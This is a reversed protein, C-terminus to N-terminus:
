LSAILRSPLAIVRRLVSGLSGATTAAVITSPVPRPVLTMVQLEPSPASVTMSPKRM